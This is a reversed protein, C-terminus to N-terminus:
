EGFVYEDESATDPTPTITWKVNVGLEKLRKRVMDANASYMKEVRDDTAWYSTTGRKHEILFGEGSKLVVAITAGVRGNVKEPYLVIKEIFLAILGRLKLRLNHKETDGKTALLGLIGAKAEEMPKSDSVAQEQKMIDIKAKVKERKTEMVALAKTLAAVPKKSGTLENELETIRAEIGALVAIAKNVKGDGARTELDGTSVEILAELIYKEMDWYNYSLPCADQNGALHGQSTLRRQTYAAKHKRVARDTKVQWKYGDVGFVLGVFLNVFKSNPGRKHKRSARDHNARYFLDDSVIRPYYGAIVKGDPIREGSENHTNPQFEGLVQRNRIVWGIFSRHWKSARGIPKFRKTLEKHIQKEGIGNATQNFIFLLAKKGEPKVKFEKAKDDWKLWSPCVSSIVKGKHANDRKSKWAAGIRNAKDRSGEYALQLYIIVPLVTEMDDINRDDITMEPDLTQVTIGSEVLECFVRYAKSVKQRSFRDLRELLLISGKKIPSDKEKVLAIFKGLDGIAPDLNAGHFAPIGLDKLSVTTDLTHQPNRDLWAQRMKTQRNVSDGGEQRKHSFRIYSYVVSM